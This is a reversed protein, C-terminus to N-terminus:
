PAARRWAKRYEAEVWEAAVKNGQAELAEKLGKLSRPNRPNKDLDARFVAEAEAPRKQELLAAGLSERVPYYWPPPEDYVLDDQLDVARRLHALATDSAAALRAHLVESAIQAIVSSKNNIFMADAPIAKVATDFAKQEAVAATRDGKGLLACTRAYRWMARTVPLKADPEAFRLIEDWKQFRELVFLPTAIFPDAAAPMEKVFPAMRDVMKQAAQYADAFRGQMMRAAVLFHLNHAYYGLYGMDMGAHHFHDEDASIARENSSAVVEYDGVRFYIHGAMHVLHGANPAIGGMLRQASPLGREPNPSMEVAHVYFHNAGPHEPDRRMVQELLAISEAMEGAPKGDKTFWRWRVPVMLTEAYLSVADPDDRYRAAVKRMADRYAQEGDCMASAAEAYAKEHEAVARKRAEGAAACAKKLDVDGDLDMNIHPAYTAAMGWHPMAAKPDLSAAKEFSRRAAPRNFGYLLVLGQDFYKQAEPSSTEIRHHHQGMGRLLQVPKDQAFAAGALLCVITRM